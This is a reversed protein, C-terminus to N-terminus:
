ELGKVLIVPNSFLCSASSKDTFKIHKSKPVAFYYYITNDKKDPETVFESPYPDPEIIFTSGDISLSVQGNPKDCNEMLYSITVRTLYAKKALNLLLYREEPKSELEFKLEVETKQFQKKSHVLDNKWVRAIAVGDVKVEYVPDLTKDVYDWAYPYVRVPSQHTLELLYEGQRNIGSWTLNNFRIDERLGPKYINLGTGQILALNADKPANKNMWNIAQHYANGFSNGWSPINKEKAGSLGGILSNFYVNQNPHLKILVFGIQFFGVLFILYILKLHLKPFIKLILNKLYVAGLGSILAVAPVYEMIQRVGGYISSSPLTVRAIPVIFWLLWLMTVGNKKKFNKLAAIIGLISLFLIYPPTTYIIWLLPYSNLGFPLYFQATQYNFGTGIQKYYGFIELLNNVPDAWLFPWSGVFILLIIAPSLFLVLLFSNIKTKGKLNSSRLSQKDLIFIKYIAWPILIFPLFLINFKTGLGLGFGVASLVLWKWSWNNVAKWFAYITLGIFAAEAPDKINFRSEGFFLPYLTLTLGTTLAALFGFTEFAFVIVIFILLTATLINFLHYSEVDGLIGLNQFFIYNSFAALIGNLPPHGSDSELFYKATLQDNQYYSREGKLTDYKIEGTLFYHLYGQGRMFHIPEDWSIGYDSITFISVLFFVLGIVLGLFVGHNVKLM